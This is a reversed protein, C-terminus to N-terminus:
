AKYIRCPVNRIATSGYIPDYTRGNIVVNVNSEYWRREQEEAEPLWWGHEVAVLHDLMGEMFKAKFKVREKDGYDITEIWVWDDEQIGNSKATEPSMEVTPWPVRKRYMEIQRGASHSFEVKKKGGMLILPYKETTAQPAVYSPLPDFGFNELFTSYLEVKGSPTNFKFVGKKHRDYKKPQHVYSVGDLEAFKKGETNLRWDHYAALDKWPIELNMRNALEIFMENDEKREYLPEIAKHQVPIFYPYGMHGRFGEKELWSSAPLVIDSLEATPTMFLDMTVSFEIQRFATEIIKADQDGVLQNRASTIMAKVQYPKGELVAKAWLSPQVFGYIANPGSLLPLEKAGIRKSLMERPLEGLKEMIPYEGIVHSKSPLLNGGRRDLNGCISTLIFTARSTQVANLNQDLPVRQCLCSPDTKAFIRAAEVIKEKPIWTIESVTEVPYGQVHEKLDEFGFAYNDVFDQDYLGENIVVNIMGLALADDTGPRIKLWIDAEKAFDTPRPDVVILKAGNKAAELIGHGMPHPVTNKPNAAWLLICKADLAEDNVIETALLAAPYGITAKVAAAVPMFCIFASSLMNPTGLLYCMYGVMGMNSYLGAGTGVCIAEPGDKEQIQKLKAGITDFAEDWSIRGWKGEGRGGTRKLPYKLRDPHYLLEIGARGKVCLKGKTIPYDPDGEIRVVKGDEVHALVGCACYCSSCVTKVVYSRSRSTM